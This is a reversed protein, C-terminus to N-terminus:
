QYLQQFEQKYKTLSYLVPKIESIGHEQHFTRYITIVLRNLQDAFESVESLRASIGDFFTKMGSKLGHTTWSGSMSNRTQAVLEDLAALNITMALKKSQEQIIRKNGQFSEM